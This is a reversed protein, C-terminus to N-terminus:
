LQRRNNNNSGITTVIGSITFQSYNIGSTYKACTYLGDKESGTANGGLFLNYQKGRELKTSSYVVSQYKKAPKFTFLDEGSESELHVLVDASQSSTLYVLISHQTSSSVPAQAMGSSGLALLEGGSINFTGDYDLSGNMNETPGNVIVMGGTMVVSGNVDIGDGTSSVYIYGGNIYLWNDGSANFSGPSSGDAGGAINVGDDDSVLHINGGNVTIIASEIGEYSKTININGGNITLKSDAHMGDDGSYIEFEGKNIVLNGNSHFADDSSNITFVGGDIITNVLGKIGKASLSSSTNKTTISFTGDAILVDTYAQLADGGSNIVFTGNEVYIYGRESEEDNTSKLADGLAEIDLNCDHIIIYDKGRIGDDVSQVNISGGRLVLGDKSAIADNFKSNVSLIGNGCITLDDKSFITADPEQNEINTYIYSAGDSLTNFSDDALIIVTKEANDIFIPSSNLCTINVNNLIVRVIDEDDTRVILQGNSLTGQVRYTGASSITVVSGTVSVGSGSVIATTEKLDILVEDVSSWIYDSSDEHSKQNSALADSVSMSFYSENVITSLDDSNETDSDSVVSTECAKFTVFIVIMVVFYLVGRVKM